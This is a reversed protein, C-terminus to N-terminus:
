YTNSKKMLAANLPLTAMLEVLRRGAQGDGYINEFHRGSLKKALRLAFRIKPESAESDIVNGSRERGNQRDGVNVVPLDFSAAEVIGSSSNGILVDATKLLSLYVARKAHVIVRVEKRTSFRKMADAIGHSGADSNPRLCLIQYGEALTANLLARMQMGAHNAEQLVGHFLAVALPMKADLAFRRRLTEKDYCAAQQLRDLSPAGTVFINEAREGMRILRKRAGTTSVFHFHSLKSIAHRIPEDVTGTREGGHLHFVPINLHIAAVAGALMEGRDGHLLIADPRKKVLLDTFGSMFKGIARAMMAGDGQRLDVPVEAMIPIQSKRIEKVTYGFRRSLHMGTVCLSLAIRQDATAQLLAGEIGGFDARTGTVYYIKRKV